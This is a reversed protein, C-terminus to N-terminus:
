DETGDVSEMQAGKREGPLHNANAADGTLNKPLPEIQAKTVPGLVTDFVIEDGKGSCAAILFVTSLALTKKM